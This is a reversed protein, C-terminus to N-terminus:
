QNDSNITLTTNTVNIKNAISDNGSKDNKQLAM